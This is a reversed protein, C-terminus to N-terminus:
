AAASHSAYAREKFPKVGVRRVTDIFREETQFGDRTGVETIVVRPRDSAQTAYNM